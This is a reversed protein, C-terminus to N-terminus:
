KAEYWDTGIHCDTELAVSLNAAAKMEEELIDRAHEAEEAPAEILLEDHIQLILRSKMEEKMLRAYVRNMAIKMIDAATGQIPSNMAVREGFSRQMFNSAKLEPVPRRRGFVSVAYGKEKASTVLGDLFAKIKPYTKFYDNIYDQAEKRSISLGQSLGFSSQGYVIGFNVAKANRRQQDTVEEYPVHFV